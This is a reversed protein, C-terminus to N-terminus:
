DQKEPESAAGSAPDAPYPVPKPAPPKPVKTGPPPSDRFYLPGKSGCAALVIACLAAAVAAKLLRLFRM